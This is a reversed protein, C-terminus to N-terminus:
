SGATPCGLEPAGGCALVDQSQAAVIVIDHAHGERGITTPEERGGHVPGSAEPTARDAVARM